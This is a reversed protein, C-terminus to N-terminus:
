LKLLKIVEGSAACFNSKPWHSVEDTVEQLTDRLKSLRPDSRKRGLSVFRRSLEREVSDCSLHGYTRSVTDTNSHGLQKAIIALPTGAQVLQSAYTHRLGHFVFQEPLGAERVAQKFLHKHCGSWAKGSSMRFVLDDEGKAEIMDLFFTMGESPLAVYRGRHSKAPAVYIGFFHGGVDRVALRALESVRCGSYLAGLVLNALDPRCALVLAKSQKRTLFYQRPVEAHPLRRLCRWARDSDTEGNEWAMRLTLRLIGILANLTKKRKRLAEHDLDQIAVRSTKQQLRGRKPPTELVDVCFQTFVRGTLDDVLVNGLRPVIHHNILSLNTEFHSKAGSIRKWEVYDKLADGITFGKKSKEYKLQRNVGKAYATSSIKSIEPSAFWDRAADLAEIYDLGDDHFPKVKGIRTQRYNGTKLRVRAVWWRNGHQRYQLGIHRSYELISWYDSARLPIRALGQPSAFDHQIKM